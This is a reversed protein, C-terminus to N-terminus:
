KLKLLPLTLLPLGMRAVTSQVFERFFPWVNLMVNRVAFIEFIEDTLEQESSYILVFESKICITYKRSKKQKTKLQFKQNIKYTGKTLKIYSAQPADLDVNQGGEFQSSDNYDITSNKLYMEDLSLSSIFKNYKEKLDNDKSKPQM